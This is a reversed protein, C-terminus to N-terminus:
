KYKFLKELFSIQPLEEAFAKNGVVLIKYEQSKFTFTINCINEVKYSVINLAYIAPDKIADKVISNTFETSDFQALIKSFLDTSSSKYVIVPTSQKLVDKITSVDIEYDKEPLSLYCRKVISYTETLRTVKQATKGNNKKGSGDCANCKVENNGDCVPCRFVGSGKCTPCTIGGTLTITRRNFDSGIKSNFYIKNDDRDSLLTGIGGCDPCCYGEVTGHCYDCTVIGRGDCVDCKPVESLTKCKIVLPPISYTKVADSGDLSSKYFRTFEQSTIQPELKSVDLNMEKFNADIEVKTENKRNIYCECVGVLAAQNIESSLQLKSLYAIGRQENRSIPEDSGDVWHAESLEEFLSGDDVSWDPSIDCHYYYNEEILGNTIIDYIESMENKRSYVKM